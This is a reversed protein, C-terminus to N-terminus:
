RRAASLHMMTRPHRTDLDHCPDPDVAFSNVDGPSRCIADRIRELRNPFESCTSTAIRVANQVARLDRCEETDRRAAATSSIQSARKTTEKALAALVSWPEFDALRSDSINLDDNVSATLLTGSGAEGARTSAGPIASVQRIGSAQECCGALV